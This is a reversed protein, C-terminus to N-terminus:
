HPVAAFAIMGCLFWAAVILPVALLPWWLACRRRRLSRVVLVVMAALILVISAWGSRIVWAVADDNCDDAYCGDTAMVFLGTLLAAYGGFVIAGASLAISAAINVARHRSCWGLRSASRAAAAGTESM